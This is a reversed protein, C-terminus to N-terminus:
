NLASPELLGRALLDYPDLQSGDVGPMVTITNAERGLRQRLLALREGSRPLSIM